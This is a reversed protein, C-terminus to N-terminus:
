ARKPPRHAPFPGLGIDGLEVRLGRPYPRRSIGAVRTSSGDETISKRIELVVDRGFGM